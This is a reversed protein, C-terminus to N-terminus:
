RVINGYLQQLQQKWGRIDLNNFHFTYKGGATEFDLTYTSLGNEDDRQEKLKMERLQNIAFCFNGPQQALITQPPLSLYERGSNAGFQAGWQGFFGKGEEKAEDRARQINTKMMESTQAAFLVHRATFVIVFAEQKMGLFGSKRVAGPLVALPMEQPAAPAPTPAAAQAPQNVPADLIAKGCEPCFRATAGLRAGCKSCFQPNAM